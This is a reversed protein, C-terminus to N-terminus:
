LMPHYHECQEERELGSRRLPAWVARRTAQAPRFAIEGDRAALPVGAEQHPAGLGHRELEVHVLAEADEVEVAGVVDEELRAEQGIGHDIGRRPIRPGAG